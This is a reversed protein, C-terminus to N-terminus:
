PKKYGETWPQKGGNEFDAIYPKWIESELKMNQRGEVKFSQQLWMSNM